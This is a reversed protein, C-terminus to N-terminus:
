KTLLSHAFKIIELVVGIIVGVAAVIVAWLMYRSQKVMEKHDNVLIDIQTKERAEKQQEKLNKEIQDSWSTLEGPM